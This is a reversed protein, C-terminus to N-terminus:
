SYRPFPLLGRRRAISVLVALEALLSLNLAMPALILGDVQAYHGVVLTAALTAILTLMAWIRAQTYGASTLRGRWFSDLANFLPLPSAILVALTAADALERRYGIIETFVWAAAGTSALVLAIASCLCGVLCSFRFLMRDSGQHRSIAIVTESLAFTVARFIFLLMAAIQWVAMAREGDAQQALARGVM